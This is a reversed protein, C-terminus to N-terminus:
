DPQYLNGFSLVSTTDHTKVMAKVTLMLSTLTMNLGWITIGKQIKLFVFVIRLCVMTFKIRQHDILFSNDKKELFEESNSIDDQYVIRLGREHLKKMKNNAKRSCLMCILPCYKFQSEFFSKFIIRQEFNLVNRM